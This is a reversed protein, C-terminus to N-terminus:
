PRSAAPASTEPTERSLREHEDALETLGLNRYALALATHTASKDRLNPLAFELDKVAEESRGLHALIIGRTNRVEPENPYKEVLTQSIALARPLDPQKGLALMLAMRNAVVPLSPALEFALKFHEGAQEVDGRQYADNGVVFHLMASSGGQALMQTLLTQASKAEPEPLRTMPLLQELLGLNQPDFDLGQQILQLRSVVNHPDTKAVHAAWDAYINGLGSAYTKDSSNKMGTKLIDAAEAYREQIALATAWAMRDPPNEEGAKEVKGQYYGAATAAWRRMDADNDQARALVALLLATDPRASVVALLHPKALDWNRRQFYLRGLMQHAEISDPELKLAHNLQIEAQRLMQATVNTQTLLQRAAFLHAPAYGPKELPAVLNLLASGEREQGLGFQAVALRFLNEERSAPGSLLLRNAAVRATQYNRNALARDAVSSYYTRTGAPNTFALVFGLSVWAFGLLIAPVSWWLLRYPRTEFWLEILLLINM